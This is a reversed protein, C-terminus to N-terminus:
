PAVLHLFVNSRVRLCELRQFGDVICVAGIRREGNTPLCVNENGKRMRFLDCLRKTDRGRLMQPDQFTVNHSLGRPSDIETVQDALTTVVQKRRCAHLGVTRATPDQVDPPRRTFSHKHSLM